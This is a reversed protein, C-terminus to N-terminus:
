SFLLKLVGVLVGLTWAFTRTSFLLFYLFAEEANRSLKVINKLYILLLFSLFAPFLIFFSESIFSLVLFLISLSFFIIELAMGGTSIHDGVAKRPNKLYVLPVFKGYRFQQKFFSKLTSRHFHWVVARPEYVMKGHKTLRYGWDTEFAVDLRPDFKVKKAIKTRVCLNMTPLRSVYKPFRKFRAELERGILKQLKNVGRPTKCVGGAAIIDPSTFCSILVKLWNKDVVCDADTFAIFPTKIKKFAYNHATPANGKVRELRIKRPYKRKLKKLIEYTGDTSYADTVFIQYSPYNLRLLSKICKEITRKANKVTVLVTVKPLKM